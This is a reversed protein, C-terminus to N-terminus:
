LQGEAGLVLFPQPPKSATSLFVPFSRPHASSQAMAGCIAVSRLAYGFSYRHLGEVLYPFALTTASTTVQPWDQVRRIKPGLVVSSCSASLALQQRRTRLVDPRTHKLGGSPAFRAVLLGTIGVDAVEARDTVPATRLTQLMLRRTVCRAEGGGM